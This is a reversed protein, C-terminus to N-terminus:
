DKDFVISRLWMLYSSVRTYVGPVSSDCKVTGFSTVGGIRYRGRDDLYMLPGGSDGKCSDKGPSGSACIQSEELLFGDIRQRYEDECDLNSLTNLELKQLNETSSTSNVLGWGAVMPDIVEEGDVEPFCIPLVNVTMPVAETLRLLALDNILLPRRQFDPHIEIREIEVDFAEPHNLDSHGLRVKRLQHNARSAICHAATLVFHSSVLTGGCLYMRRDAAETEYVLAAAWPFEHDAAPGGGFIRTPVPSHGCIQDVSTETVGSEEMTEVSTMQEDDDSESPLNTRVVDTRNDGGRAVAPVNSVVVRKRDIGVPGPCCYMPSGVDSDFGCGVFKQISEFDKEKALQDLRPCSPINRCDCINPPSNLAEPCIFLPEEGEFGCTDFESVGASNSRLMALLAPCEDIPRCLAGEASGSQTVDGGGGMEEDNFSSSGPFVIGSNVTRRRQPHALVVAMTTVAVAVVATFYKVRM